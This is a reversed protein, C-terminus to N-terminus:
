SMAGKQVRGGRRATAGAVSEEKGNAGRRGAMVAKATESAKGRDEEERELRRLEEDQSAMEARLEALRAELALRRRQAESVRRGHEIRHAEEDRHERLEQAARASGTLVGETGLYAPVLRLGEGTILFERVQHSHAMGRSKLVYLVRNREGGAEVDRLLLWTDMLSSVALQTAELADGGHTLATFLSTIGRSKLHDVLRLVMSEVADRDGASELSSLPDVVVASPRLDEVRKHMGALHMELGRLTPRASDIVLRGERAPSELDLGISRMDRIMQGPSEEFAFYLCTEGKACLSAAFSAALSSKGTGATGSLLVSSGRFFGKGGLMADLGAVGTAVRESSAEHALGASTLPMVTIGQDDILFPYENSGHSSGRYKVVRLRRTSVQGTVRHDLLVVCDSVYEELGQRTLAGTGKEGTIVATVGRDKLWWFLRRLEARLLVTDSLAAFLSEITDLAVRKAGIQDIAHGLRIFLGELDYEGTEEIESREIRVHDVVLLRRSQLDELDFGLSAVNQALERAREEFSVFVGPEGHQLAGRVLFELAFLTKGCGPGGCVLTPRGAPLGGQTVADFGQIGTPSKSLATLSPVSPTKGAEPRTRSM